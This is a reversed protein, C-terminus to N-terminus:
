PGSRERLREVLRRIAKDAPHRAGLETLGAIAADPEADLRALAQEYARRDDPGYDVPWPEHVPQEGSRGRVAIMGLQRLRGMPLLAAMGPGVCITTGLDKNAAEFRAAANVANGHATYDLKRGGGVDGVIAPGTELGIRTRGFGLARAEPRVQFEAAFAAVALACDLARVPHEALDVPANFLAHVADGVIKDIMGGHDVIIQSVGEFYSDLVAVLHDPQARETMSTFGEVDTFLVSVVRQEGKLKLLSPNQVIQRVVGPALHQEFRRQMVTQRRWTEGAVVLATAGFGALVVIPGGLPDVLLALWLYSALAALLWVVGGAVATSLGAVPPLAMALAIAGLGSAAAAALEVNILTNPRRPAIGSRLQAVANAHLQVSPVLHGDHASRLGGLEPASSGVLVIAGNIAPSSTAGIDLAPITRRAHRDAGDPVLRLTGDDELPIIVAGVALLPPSPALVLVSAEQAVRVLEISLSPVLRDGGVAILPVRRINGDADADLALLGLGAAASRLVDAPAVIGAAHWLEATDLSGRALVPTTPIVAAAPDPDPDLGAGLVIRTGSFAKALEGTADPLERALRAIDPNGSREILRRALRSPAADGEDILLIDLGIALPGQASIRPLLRALGERLQAPGGWQALTRRDIDIVVAESEPPLTTTAAVLTDLVRERLSAYWTTAMALLCIAIALVGAVAARLPPAQRGAREAVLWQGIGQVATRGRRSLGNPTTM